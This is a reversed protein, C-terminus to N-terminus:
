NGSGSKSFIFHIQGMFTAGDAVDPLTSSRFYLPLENKSAEFYLTGVKGNTGIKPATGSEITGLFCTLNITEDGSGVTRSVQISNEVDQNDSIEKIVVDVGSDPDPVEAAVTQSGEQVTLPTMTIKQNASFIHNNSPKVNDMMAIEKPYHIIEDFHEQTLIGLMSTKVSPILTNVTEIDADEVITSDAGIGFNGPLENDKANAGTWAYIYYSAGDDWQYDGNTKTFTVTFGTNGSPTIVANEIANAKYTTSLSGSGDSKALAFMQYRQEGKGDPNNKYLAIKLEGSNESDTLLNSITEKSDGTNDNTRGGELTFTASITLPDGEYFMKNSETQSIDTTNSTYVKPIKLVKTESLPYMDKLPDSDRYVVNIRDNSQLLNISGNSENWVYVRYTSGTRGEDSNLTIQLQIEGKVSDMQATVNDVNKYLQNGRIRSVSGGTLNITGIECIGLKDDGGQVRYIAYNVAANNGTFESRADYDFRTTFSGMNEYFKVTQTTYGNTVEIPKQVYIKSRVQPVKAHDTTDGFSQSAVGDGTFSNAQNASTWAIIQYDKHNYSSYGNATTLNTDDRVAFTVTFTKNTNDLESIKPESVLTASAPSAPATLNASGKLFTFNSTGDENGGNSSDQQYLAVFLKDEGKIKEFNEATDDYKFTATVNFTHNTGTKVPVTTYKDNAGDGTTTGGELTIPKVGETLTLQITRDVTVSSETFRLTVPYATGLNALANNIGSHEGTGTVKTYNGGVKDTFNYDATKFVKAGAAKAIKNYYQAKNDSNLFGDFEEKSMTVNQKAYFEYGGEVEVNDSNWIVRKGSSTGRGSNGTLSETKSSYATDTLAYNLVYRTDETLPISAGNTVNDNNIINTLNSMEASQYTFTVGTAGGNLGAPSDSSGLRYGAGYHISMTSGGSEQTGGPATNTLASLNDDTKIVRVQDNYNVGNWRVFRPNRSIPMLNGNGSIFPVKYVIKSKGVTFEANLNGRVYYESYSNDTLKPLQLAIRFSYEEGVKTVPVGANESYPQWKFTGTTGTRRYLSKGSVSANPIVEGSGNVVSLDGVSVKLTGQNVSNVQPMYTTTPIFGVQAYVRDGEVPWLSRNNYVTGSNNYYANREITAGSVDDYSNLWRVDTSGLSLNPNVMAETAYIEIQGVGMKQNPDEVFYPSSNYTYEGIKLYAAGFTFALKMTKNSGLRGLVASVSQTITREKANSPTITFTMQQSDKSYTIKYKILGTDNSGVSVRPSSEAESTQFSGNTTSIGIHSANQYYSKKGSSDAIGNEAADYINRGSLIPWAGPFASNSFTYDGVAKFEKEFITFNKPDNAMRNYYTETSLDYECIISNPLTEYAGLRYGAGYALGARGKAADVQGAPIFSITVGGDINLDTSEPSGGSAGFKNGVQIAGTLSFDKTFDFSIDSFAAGQQLWYANDWSGYEWKGFRFRAGNNPDDKPSLANTKEDYLKVQTPVNGYNMHEKSIASWRTSFDAISWTKTTTYDYGGARASINSNTQVSTAIGSRAAIEQHESEISQAEEQVYQLPEEAIEEAKPLRVVLTLEESQPTLRDESIIETPHASEEFQTNEESDGMSDSTPQAKVTQVDQEASQPKESQAEATQLSEIDDPVSDYIVEFVYEGSETVPFNVEEPAALSGDPLKVNIIEYEPLVETIDGKVAGSDSTLEDAYLRYGSESEVSQEQVNQKQANQEQGTMAYSLISKGPVSMLMIVALSLSVMKKNVPKFRRKKFM